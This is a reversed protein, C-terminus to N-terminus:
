APAAMGGWPTASALGTSVCQHQPSACHCVATARRCLSPFPGALWLMLAPVEGLQLLSLSINELFPLM